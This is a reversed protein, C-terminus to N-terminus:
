PRDGDDPLVVKRGKFPRTHMTRDFSEWEESDVDNRREWAQSGREDQDYADNAMARENRRAQREWEREEAAWEAEQAAWRAEEKRKAIEVQRALEAAQEEERRDERVSSFLSLFSALRSPKKAVEATLSGIVEITAQARHRGCRVSYSGPREFFHSNIVTESIRDGDEEHIAFEHSSALSGRWHITTGTAVVRHSPRFDKIEIAVELEPLDSSAERPAKAPGSCGSTLLM